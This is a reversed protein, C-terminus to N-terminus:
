YYYVCYKQKFFISINKPNGTLDTGGYKWGFSFHKLNSSFNWAPMPLSRSINFIFFFNLRIIYTQMEDIKATKEAIKLLM